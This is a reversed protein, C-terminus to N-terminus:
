RPAAAPPPSVVLSLLDGRCAAVEQHLRTRYTGPPPADGRPLGTPTLPDRDGLPAAPDYREATPLGVRASSVVSGGVVLVTGDLLLTATPAARRSALPPAPLWADRAPDYVEVAALPEVPASGAVVLVRGDPLLLQPHGQHTIALDAARTWADAAPDYIECTVHGEVNDPTGGAVLIRGDRLLVAAHSARPCAMAAAPRWAGRRPDFLEAGALVGEADTSGGAVLVRGDALLTATHRSRPHAMAAAASWVGAVPDFRECARYRGPGCQGGAVLLTGDPLLTATHDVRAYAMDLAAMWTDIRPDYLEARAFPRTPRWANAAADYLHPGGTMGGAVLVRGDRLLTASHSSRPAPLPAVPTWTDAAPAYVVASATPVLRDVGGTVLVTGNQLLTATHYVRGVGLHTLRPGSAGPATSGRTVPLVLVGDPPDLYGRTRWLEWIGGGLRLAVDREGRAVAWRVAARVNHHERELRAMWQGARPGSAAQKVGEALTLYCAAHRWAVAECEGADALRELAYERLTELLSFRDAGATGGMGSTENTGDAGDPQRAHVVLSKHALSELSIRITEPDLAALPPCPATFASHWRQVEPPPQGLVATADALTCGGAFVALRRFVTREPETLRDHSWAIAAPLAQQRPPLDRLGAAVAGLGAAELERLTDEPPLDAYRAACLEIALPLGDLRVCLAAVAPANQPTLAFPARAGARDLFFAVSEVDALSGPTLPQDLDPVALPPVALLHEWRLDLPARSTALVRLRPCAALLAAVGPAAPLVHECNDLVLLLDKTRLHDEVARRTAGEPREQREQREPGEPREPMRLAAAIAAPVDEPERVAALDVFWAGHVFGDRLAAGVALALRTKGVGPPGVLTLLRTGRLLRRRAAILEDRRGILPGPPAPLNTTRADRGNLGMDAMWAPFSALGTLAAVFDTRRAPPIDLAAALRTAFARTPGRRGGEVSRVSEAATNGLRAALQGQTWGRALRVDRIWRAAAGSRREGTM